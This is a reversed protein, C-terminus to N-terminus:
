LMRLDEDRYLNEEIATNLTNLLEEKDEGLTGALPIYNSAHNSRFVCNTVELNEIFLKTEIMVEKPNLLMFKENKYDNYLPTGDELMLTLLGVYDPNIDNILKASDIAHKEM